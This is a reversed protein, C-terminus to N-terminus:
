NYQDGISNNMMKNQVNTNNNCSVINEIIPNQMAINLSKTFPFDKNWISVLDLVDSLVRSPDMESYM